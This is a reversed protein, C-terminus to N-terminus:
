ISTSSLKEMKDTNNLPPVTPPHIAPIRRALRLSYGCENEDSGTRRRREGREYNREDQKKRREEM